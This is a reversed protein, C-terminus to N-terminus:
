KCVQLELPTELPSLKGTEAKGSGWGEVACVLACEEQVIGVEWSSGQFCFSCLISAQSVTTRIVLFYFKFGGNWLVANEEEEM